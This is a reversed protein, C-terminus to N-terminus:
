NEEPYPALGLNARLTDHEFETHFLGRRQLEPILHDTLAGLGAPYRSYFPLFMFGDAAGKEFREQLLDAVHEVSGIPFWHGSASAHYLILDRVTRLEGKQILRLLVGYRSRRGQVSEEPPLKDVPIPDDLDYDTFEIGNFQTSLATRGKDFDYGDHSQEWIRRAEKDTSGVVPAVGPMILVDGPSRGVAVARRKIDDYLEQSAELETLGTTFIVDAHSAGLNKGAESSGAQTRIPRGQPSRAINLPGQVSFHESKWDIRHVKAPDVLVNRERDAVIADADWSDWLAEVVGVFETAIAYRDDHEPLVKGFQEGGWASTVLNWGARGRSIHDLSAIQRALNYPETFSTSVSPILGIRDTVAALASLLTIPELGLDPAKRNTTVGDALFIMHIKAAEAKRVQDIYPAIDVKPTSDAYAVRWNSNIGGVLLGLALSPRGQAHTSV